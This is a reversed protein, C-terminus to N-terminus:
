SSAKRKRSAVDLAAVLSEVNRIREEAHPFCNLCRPRGACVAEDVQKYNKSLPHGCKFVDSGKRLCHVIMSKPHQFYVSGEPPPVVPAKERERTAEEDSSSSSSSSESSSESDSSEVIELVAAEPDEINAVEPSPFIEEKVGAEEATEEAGLDFAHLDEEIKIPWQGEESAPVWNKGLPQEPYRNARSSDPVFTGVRAQKILTQLKRVPRTQLDRSYVVETGTVATAHHSLAARLDPSFGARAAWACMIAKLSHSRVTKDDKKKGLLLRLWVSAEDSTIPRQLWKGDAGPAPVLPGLPRKQIDLGAHHHLNLFQKVWCGRVVGQAPVVIPMYEAKRASVNSTKHDVTYLDLTGEDGRLDVEARDLNRLDSWRCRGYAATLFLGCGLRDMIHQTEDEMTEHLAVLDKFRLPEAQRRVRSGAKIQAFGILRRSELVQDCEKMNFIYKCFRICELLSGPGTACKKKSDLFQFYQWVESEVPPLVVRRQFTSMAWDCYRMMCDARLLATNPSKNGFMARLIAYTEEGSRDRDDAEQLFVGASSALPNLRLLLSWKRCAEKFVDLKKQDYTKDPLNKISREFMARGKGSGRAITQLVEAPTAAGTNRVEDLVPECKPLQPIPFTGQFIQGFVGQEWPLALSSSINHSSAFSDFVAQRWANTDAAVGRSKPKPKAVKPEAVRLAEDDLDVVPAEDDLGNSDDFLGLPDHVLSGDPGIGYEHDPFELSVAPEDLFQVFEYSSDAVTEEVHEFSEDAM